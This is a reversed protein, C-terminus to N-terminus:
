WLRPYQKVSMSRDQYQSGEKDRVAMRADAPSAFRVLFTHRRSRVVAKGNRDKAFSYDPRQTQFTGEVLHDINSNGGGVNWGLSKPADILSSPLTTTADESEPYISDMDYGRFLWRIDHATARLDSVEVRAVSDSLNLLPSLHFSHLEWSPHEYKPLAIDPYFERINLATSGSKLLHYPSEQANIPETSRPYPHSELYSQLYDDVNNQEEEADGTEIEESGEETPSSESFSDDAEETVGDGWMLEKEAAEIKDEYEAWVGKWLGERWETRQQQINGEANQLHWEQQRRHAEARRV